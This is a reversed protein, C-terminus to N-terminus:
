SRYAQLCVRIRIAPKGRGSGARSVCRQYDRTFVGENMRGRNIAASFHTRSFEERAGNPSTQNGSKGVAQATPQM